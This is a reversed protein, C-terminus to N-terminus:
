KNPLIAEVPLELKPYPTKCKSCAKPPKAFDIVESHTCKPCPYAFKTNM